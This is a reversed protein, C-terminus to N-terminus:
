PESRRLLMAVLLGATFAIGVAAIPRAHVFGDLKEFTEDFQKRAEVKGAEAREAMRAAESRVRKEVVEAHEAAQDVAEHAASRIHETTPAEGGNGSTSRKAPNNPTTTM